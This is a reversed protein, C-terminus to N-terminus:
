KKTDSECHSTLSDFSQKWKTQNQIHQTPNEGHIYVSVQIVSLLLYERSTCKGWLIVNM